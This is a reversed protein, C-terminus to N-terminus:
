TVWQVVEASLDRSSRPLRYAAPLPDVLPAGAVCLPCADPPWMGRELTVLRYFPAATAAAIRAAADGLALLSACGALEAGCALLDQRTALLASGANVADDVLLVRRDRVAARLSGPIRYRLTEGIFRDGCLITV